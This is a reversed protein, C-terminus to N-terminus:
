NDATLKEDLKMLFARLARAYLSHEEVLVRGALTAADDDPMVPVRAQDLVPGADLDPTVLHVTCGAQSDGAALARAHTNLGPYKPLLSPHINLIRGSWRAVFDPSLIRMFGALCLVEAGAAILLRHLDAEFAARDGGTAVAIPLGLAAAKALGPADARSSVVLCCRGPHDGTMACALAQM